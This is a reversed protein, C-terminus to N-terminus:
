SALRVVNSREDGVFAAWAPMLKERRPELYNTRLYAAETKDKLKHALAAEAWEGPFSTQEAVWDRFSSRFAHVDFAVGGASALAKTLTANSLPKGPKSGPFVLEDSNGPALGQVERLIALAPPTLPITHPRGGKMKESPITWQEKVWDVEGWTMHRVEGPRAACLVDFLLAMRGVTPPMARLRAALAPVESWPMAKFHGDNRPQKPFGKVAARMPAETERWGRAHAYDLVVGVRQRVRRATEPITLWIPLLAERIQTVGVADVPKSGFLPFVHAELTSLWQAGHKGSKWGAKITEHYERAVAEFSPIVEAQRKAELSPNGGGKAIRRWETAKIRAESLGLLDLSGLGYDRVRKDVQVRLVWSKAGTPKVLLYLGKGDGHRGPKANRVELATLPM